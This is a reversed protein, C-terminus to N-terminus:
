TKWSSRPNWCWPTRGTLSCSGAPRWSPSPRSAGARSRRRSRGRNEPGPALAARPDRRRRRPLFSRPSPLPPRRGRVARIHRPLVCERRFEEPDRLAPRDPDRERDARPLLEQRRGRGPGRRADDLRPRFPRVRLAPRRAARRLRRRAPSVRISLAVGRQMAESVAQWTEERVPRFPSRLALKEMVIEPRLRVAPPMLRALREYCAKLDRALPTGGFLAFVQAAVGISFLDKGDVPLFPLVYDSRRTAIATTKGTSNSRPGSSM